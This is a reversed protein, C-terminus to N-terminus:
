GGGGGEIVTFQPGDPDQPLGNIHRFLWEAQEASLQKRKRKTDKAVGPRPTPQPVPPPKTGKQMRSTAYAYRLFRLEDYIGALLMEPQSWTGEAPDADGRGMDPRENRLATM